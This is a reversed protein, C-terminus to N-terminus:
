QTQMITEAFDFTIVSEDDVIIEFKDGKTVRLIIQPDFEIDTKDPEASGNKKITMQSKGATDTLSFPFYNGEQEEVNSSFEKFNEVYKLSGTVKGNDEVKIDDGLFDNGKWDGLGVRAEGVPM